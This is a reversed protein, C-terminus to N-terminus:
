TPRVSCQATEKTLTRGDLTGTSLSKLAVKQDLSVSSLAKSTDGCWVAWPRTWPSCTAWEPTHQGNECGQRNGQRVGQNLQFCRRLSLHLSDDGYWTTAVLSTCVARGKRMRTETSTKVVGVLSYRPLVNM